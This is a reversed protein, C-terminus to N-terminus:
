HDSLYRLAAAAQYSKKIGRQQSEFEEPTADRNLIQLKIRQGALVKVEAPLFRNDRITLAVEADLASAPATGFIMCLGAATIILLRHFFIIQM